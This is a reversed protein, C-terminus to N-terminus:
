YTQRMERPKIEKEKCPGQWIEKSLSECMVSSPSRFSVGRLTLFFSSAGNQSKIILVPTFTRWLMVSKGEARNGNVKRAQRKAQFGDNRFCLNVKKKHLPCDAAYGACKSVDTPCKHTHTDTQRPYGCLHKPTLWILSCYHFWIELGFSFHFTCKSWIDM